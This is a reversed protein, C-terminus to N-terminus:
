IGTSCSQQQSIERQACMCVVFFLSAAVVFLVRRLVMSTGFPQTMHMTTLTYTYFAVRYKCSSSSSTVVTIDHTAVMICTPIYRFIHSARTLLLVGNLNILRIDSKTDISIQNGTWGSGTWTLFLLFSGPKQVMTSTSTPSTM